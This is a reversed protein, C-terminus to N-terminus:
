RWNSAAGLNYVRTFGNGRLTRAAIASRTGSACYLVVPRDRAGLESARAGIESVPINRAGDVHGSAFEGPSRVDVLLAGQSVLRKAEDPSVDPRKLYWMVVFAIVVSVLLVTTQMNRRVVERAVTQVHDNSGALSFLTRCAERLISTLSL